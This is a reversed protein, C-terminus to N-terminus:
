RGGRPQGTLGLLWVYALADRSDETTDGTARVAQATLEWSAAVVARGVLRPPQPITPDVHRVWAAVRAFREEALAMVRDRHELGEDGVAHIEVLFARCALPRRRGWAVLRAAAAPLVAAPTDGAVQDLDALFQAGFQDYAALFADQKNRFQEYFTTRSVGAAATVHAVTAAAYGREGVVDLVADLIRQRQSAAVQERSLGHPGKPLRDATARPQGPM